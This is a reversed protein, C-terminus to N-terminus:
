LTSNDSIEYLLVWFRLYIAKAIGIAQALDWVQLLGNKQAFPMTSERVNKTDLVYNGNRVKVPPLAGPDVCAEHFHRDRMRVSRATDHTTTYPSIFICRTTDHTNPQSFDIVERYFRGEVFDCFVLGRCRRSIRGKSILVSRNESDSDSIDSM